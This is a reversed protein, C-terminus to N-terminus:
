RAAIRSVAGGLSVVYIRGRADEGFSSLAAIQPLGAVRANGSAGSSSLRAGYIKGECFDGYLYKGRLSPLAPDRVVYGGTVSCWGEDHTRVIVPEIAGDVTENSFPRDGERVRWGFNGGRAQAITTFDIEEVASQGVDGIILDGAVRDFSFRWPNRLGYSYIERRAGARGVFPNSAPVSYAKSGSRRPDIRLIKGLLSGLNQANGITGHQDGGGGGDGTGIYLLGDPGFNLQGGNHNAEPDDMVLVSRISGANARDSTARRLEAVEQKGDRRTFYVYFLGSKAYDPSFALGLLGQEGGATVRSSIDLFPTSLTKGDRVVSIRGGQQVVMVRRLDKPPATVYLPMKFKGVSVLKVGSAAAATAAASTADSTTDPLERAASSGCAGLSIACALAAILASPM